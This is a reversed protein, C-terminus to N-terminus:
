AEKITQVRTESRKLSVLPKTFSSELRAVAKEMAPPLFSVSLGGSSGLQSSANAGKLEERGRRDIRGPKVGEERLVGEQAVEDDPDPVASVNTTQPGLSLLEDPLGCDLLGPDLVRAAFSAVEESVKLTRKGGGPRM